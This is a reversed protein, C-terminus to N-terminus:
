TLYIKKALYRAMALKNRAIFLLDILLKIEQTM